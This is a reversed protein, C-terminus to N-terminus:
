LINYMDNVESTVWTVLVPTGRVNSPTGATNVTNELSEFPNPLNVLHHNWLHVWNSSEYKKLPTPEVVLYNPNKNNSSEVQSKQIILLSNSIWNFLEGWPYWGGFCFVRRYVMRTNGFDTPKGGLDDMKIPHEMIFWGNQPVRIKPFGWVPEFEVREMSLTLIATEYVRFKWSKTMLATWPSPAVISKQVDGFFCM